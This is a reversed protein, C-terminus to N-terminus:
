HRRLADVAADVATRGHSGSGWLVGILEAASLAGAGHAALRERPRERGPDFASSSLEAAQHPRASGAVRGFRRGTADM